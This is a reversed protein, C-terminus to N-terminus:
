HQIIITKSEAVSDNSIVKLLYIGSYLETTNIPCTNRQHDLRKVLIGQVTYILVTYDQLKTNLLLFQDAPNPAIQVHESASTLDKVSLPSCYIGSKNYSSLAKYYFYPSPLPMEDRVQGLGLKYTLINPDGNNYSLDPNLQNYANVILASTLCYSSDSPIYKVFYNSGFEDPMLTSDFDPLNINRVTDRRITDILFGQTAWHIRTVNIVYETASSNLINKAIVSDIQKYFTDKQSSSYGTGVTYYVFYDGLAYDYLQSQKPFPPEIRKFIQVSDTAGLICETHLSYYDLLAIPNRFPFSYLSFTQYFGHNKSLIIQKGHLSNNTNVGSTDYASITIIKLSDM